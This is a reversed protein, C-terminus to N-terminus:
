SVTITGRMSGHFDCVYPHTGPEDFTVEFTDGAAMTGSGFSDDDATVTHSIRGEHVWTVTEGAAITVDSPSFVFGDDDLLAVQTGSSAPEDVDAPADAAEEAPDEDPAESEPATVEPQTAADPDALPEDGAGCAALVLACASAAALSATRRARPTITM